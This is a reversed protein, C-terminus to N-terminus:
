SIIGTKFFLVVVVTTSRRPRIFVILSSCQSLCENRELSVNQKFMYRVGIVLGNYSSVILHTSKHKEQTNNSYKVLHPSQEVVTM